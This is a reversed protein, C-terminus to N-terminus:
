GNTNKEKVTIRLQNSAFFNSNLDLTYTFDVTGGNENLHHRLEKTTVGLPLDGYPTMYHCMHKKGPELVMHSIAQGTRNMTVSSPNITLTTECGEFGTAASDEYRITVDGNNYSYEGLTSLSFSDDGIESKQLTDITILYNDKM